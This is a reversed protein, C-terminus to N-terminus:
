RPACTATTSGTTLEKCARQFMDGSRSGLVYVIGGIVGAVLAVILAYEVASAGRDDRQFWSKIRSIVDNM